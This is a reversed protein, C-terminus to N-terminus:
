KSQTSEQFQVFLNRKSFYHRPFQMKEFIYYDLFDKRLGVVSDYFSFQKNKHEVSEFSVRGTDYTGFLGKAQTLFENRSTKQIELQEFLKDQARNYEKMIEESKDIRIYSLFYGSKLRNSIKAYEVPVVRSDNFM